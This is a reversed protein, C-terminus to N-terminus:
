ALSFLSVDISGACCSRSFPRSISTFSACAATAEASLEDFSIWSTERIQRTAPGMNASRMPTSSESEMVRGRALPTSNARRTADPSRLPLNSMLWFSSTPMRAPESLWIASRSPSITRPMWDADSCSAAELSCSEAVAVLRASLAPM